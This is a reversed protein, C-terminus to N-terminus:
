IRYWALLGDGLGPGPPPAAVGATASLPAPRDFMELTALGSPRDPSIVAAAHLAAAIGIPGDLTSALYVEYGARRSRSAADLLGTIGGCRGLKLCAAQCLRRDLAAPEAATEDLSLPVDTLEALRAMADAGGVPEECLELGGPSLVRLAALAEEVTWARNADLRIAMAPGAAARVAAVRGADDGIGVKVKVCTFGATRAAAAERAAGARDEASITWNLAIEPAAPAGLLRWIPTGARKGALDWLAVDIAALAHPVVTLEACRSLLEAHDFGDAGALARECAALAGATEAISLGDYGPLPAAEGVGVNGQGDELALVLLEREGVSGWAARLPTRLPVRATRVTVKV